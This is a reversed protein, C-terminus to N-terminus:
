RKFRTIESPTCGENFGFTAKNSTINKYLLHMAKLYKSKCDDIHDIQWGEEQQEAWCDLAVIAKALNIPDSKLADEYTIILNDYAKTLELIKNDSIKWNSIPEPKIKEGNSAKIAKKSYLKVSNWDHMKNAEFNANVKYEEILTSIFPDQSTYTNKNLEKYSSSWGTLAM